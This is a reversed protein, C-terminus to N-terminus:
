FQPVANPDYGSQYLVGNWATLKKGRERSFKLSRAGRVSSRNNISWEHWWRSWLWYSYPWWRVQPQTNILNQGSWVELLIDQTSHSMEDHSLVAALEAEIKLPM